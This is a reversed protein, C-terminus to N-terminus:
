YFRTSPPKAALAKEARAKQKDSCRFGFKKDFDCDPPAPEVRLNESGGCDPRYVVFRVPEAYSTGFASAFFGNAWMIELEELFQPALMSRLRTRWERQTQVDNWLGFNGGALIGDGATAFEFSLDTKEMLEPHKAAEELTGSRTTATWVSQFKLRLYEQSGVERITHSTTQKVYDRDYSFLFMKGEANEVILRINDSKESLSRIETAV